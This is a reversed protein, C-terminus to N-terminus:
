QADCSAAMSILSINHKNDIFAEIYETISGSIKTSVTIQSAFTKDNTYVISYNIVYINYIRNSFKVILAGRKCTVKEM